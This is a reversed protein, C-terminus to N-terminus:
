AVYKDADVLDCVEFVLIMPHGESDRLPEDDPANWYDGPTASCREDTVPSYAFPQRAIITGGDPHVRNPREYIRMNAPTASIGQYM